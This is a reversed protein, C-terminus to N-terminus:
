QGSLFATVVRDHEEAKEWQPWHGADNICYFSANPIIEALRRGAEPGTGPNKESWLVLTPVSIKALDEKSFEFQESTGAGFSHAYLQSLAKKTDVQAYIQYRLDILEDTIREPDVVLWELRKKVTERSLNNLADISRQALLTRGEAPRENQVAHRVGASTNLIIKKIRNPHNLALWITVWGGLSEGEIHAQEIGIADMLDLVQSGLAPLWESTFPEKQSFGHWLFDMAYVNFREGLRKINRSYAEAHGGIGHLCILSDGASGSAEIVRTKYKNQYYKIQTGALDTYISM